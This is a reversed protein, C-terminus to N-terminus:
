AFRDARYPALLPDRVGGLIEAALMEALVPALTVGSHTCAVSLGPAIEGVAPYGDAPMPRIGLMAALPVVPVGPLLARLADLLLGTLAAPDETILRANPGEGFFVEGAVLRGDPEQRVHVDPSLLIHSLVPAVPQCHLIFGPRNDMPLALGEPALLAGTATGAALLLHDAEFRGFGTEVGTVRGGRQVLREVRAGIMVRAGRAAAASLLRRAAIRADVATEETTLLAEAPPAALAPELAAIEDRGIVRAGYEGFRTVAAQEDAARWDGRQWSIAGRATLGLGQGLGQGAGAGGIQRDLRRWAAIAAQRLAFYAPTAPANANIWGFSRASTGSGPPAGDLVVVEAGTEALRLASAAGIIGAGIVLIKLPM